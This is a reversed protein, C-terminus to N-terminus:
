CLDLLISAAIKSVNYYRHMHMPRTRVVFLHGGLLVDPGIFPPVGPPTYPVCIGAEGM